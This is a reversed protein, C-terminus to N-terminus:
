SREMINETISNGMHRLHRTYIGVLTIHLLIWIMLQSAVCFDGEGPPGGKNGCDPECVGERLDNTQGDTM